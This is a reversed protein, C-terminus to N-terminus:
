NGFTPMAQPFDWQLTDGWGFLAELLACRDPELAPDCSAWELKLNELPVRQEPMPRLAQSVFAPADPIAPDREENAHCFACGTLDETFLAHEFPHSGPLPQDIPFELEGKLSRFNARQEGLELLAAGSGSLAVSMLLPEIYVFVRPSRTGVAPQASLDSLTPHLQLPRALAEVFCPLTLPKPLANILELTQDISQPRDSVGAPAQCGPAHVHESEAPAPAPADNCAGLAWLAGLM